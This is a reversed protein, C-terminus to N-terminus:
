GVRGITLGNLMREDGIVGEPFTNFSLSVRVKGSTTPEVVHPLSSPFLILSGTEAPIRCLLSNFANYERAPIRIREYADKVFFINDLDKQASVYFVGSVMSNQHTHKDHYQGPLTYNTWSQTIKLRLDGAPKFTEEFYAGLSKVMFDNLGVLGPENLVHNNVSSRTAGNGPDPGM